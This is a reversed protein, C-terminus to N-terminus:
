DEQVSTPHRFYDELLIELGNTYFNIGRMDVVLDEVISGYDELMEFEVELKFM